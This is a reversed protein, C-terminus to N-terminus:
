TTVGYKRYVEEKIKKMYETQEKSTSGLLLSKAPKELAPTAAPTHLNVSSTTPQVPKTSVEGFLALVLSPNETALQGLKEPTTGLESAKKRVQDTAKEGFKKALATQVTQLNSQQKTSNDKDDLVKKVLNVIAQEDLGGTAPTEKGPQEQEKASLKALVEDINDVKKAKEQLEALRDEQAKREAELTKIHAQSNALATIADQITKYKQEGSDNKIGALLDALPDSALPPITDDGTTVPPKIEENSFIDHDSM